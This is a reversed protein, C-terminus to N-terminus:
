QDNECLMPIYHKMTDFGCKKYFSETGPVGILGIWGIGDKILMKKIEKVITLGFGKKRYKEQVFIDQIYADSIGDSIARGMGCLEDDIFLGTFIYSGEIMKKIYYLDKDCSKGWWGAEKYFDLIKVVDFKDVNNKNFFYINM